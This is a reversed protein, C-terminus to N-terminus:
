PASWGPRGMLGVPPLDIRAGNHHIFDRYDYRAGPFGVLRWGVMDRNGGYVPDSFFGEITMEMLFEFFKQAPVGPLVIEGEELGKLIADQWPAEIDAFDADHTERAHVDVATLGDRILQAPTHHTQYGQTELPEPFPGQMYWHQARGYFGALQRDFFEVVHAERAGPSDADGPILRATMADLIRREAETLFTGPTTMYYPPDAVGAEWPMGTGHYDRALLSAPAVIASGAMLGRFIFSRRTLDHQAM